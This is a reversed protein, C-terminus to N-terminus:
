KVFVIDNHYELYTNMFSNISSESLQEDRMTSIMKDLDRKTLDEIPTTVDLKKSISRFHQRYTSLTKDKAGRAAVSSLFAPYIEEIPNKTSGKRMTIRAM